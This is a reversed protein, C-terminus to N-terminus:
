SRAFNYQRYIKSLHDAIEQQSRKRQSPETLFIRIFGSNVSTSAGFGPATVCIIAEREPLTDAIKLLELMYNDM